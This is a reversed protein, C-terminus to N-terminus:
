RQPYYDEWNADTCYSTQRYVLRATHRCSPRPICLMCMSKMSSICVRMWVEHGAAHRKQEASHAEHLRAVVDSACLRRSVEVEVEHPPHTNDALRASRNARGRRRRAYNDPVHKSHLRAYRITFWIQDLRLLRVSVASLSEGCHLRTGIANPETIWCQMAISFSCSMRWIIQLYVFCSNQGNCVVIGCSPM